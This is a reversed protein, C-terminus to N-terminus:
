RLNNYVVFIQNPTLDWVGFRFDLVLSCIWDKNHRYYRIVIITYLMAICAIKEKLLLRIM